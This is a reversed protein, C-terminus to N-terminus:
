CKVRVHAPADSLSSSGTGSLSPTCPIDAWSEPRRATGHTPSRTAQPGLCPRISILYIGLALFVPRRYPLHSWWNCPTRSPTGQGWCVCEATTQSSSVPSFFLSCVGRWRVGDEGGAGPGRSGGPAGLSVAAWPLGQGPAAPARRPGPRPPPSLLLTPPRRCPRCLRWRSRQGSCPPSCLPAHAPPLSSPSPGPQCRGWPPCLWPCMRFRPCPGSRAM